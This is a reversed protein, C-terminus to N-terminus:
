GRANIRIALDGESLRESSRAAEALPRLKAEWKRLSRELRTETQKRSFVAKKQSRARVTRLNKKRKTVPM